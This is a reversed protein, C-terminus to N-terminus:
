EKEEEVVETNNLQLLKVLSKLNKIEIKKHLFSEYAFLGDVLVETRFNAKSIVRIKVTSM